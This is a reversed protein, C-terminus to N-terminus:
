SGSHREGDLPLCFSVTTGTGPQSDISVSGGLAHVSTRVAALGIGNGAALGAANRARYGPDFV